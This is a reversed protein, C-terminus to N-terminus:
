GIYAASDQVTQSGCGYSGSGPLGIGDEAEISKTCHRWAAEYSSENNNSCSFTLHFQYEDASIQQPTSVVPNGAGLQLTQPTVDTGLNIAFYTYVPESMQASLASAPVQVTVTEMARCESSPCDSTNTGPQNMIVFISSTASSALPATANSNRVVEVRYRTALTPTVQFAYQATTDSPHLAVSGVLTPPKTFPFQQAYLMAVEGSVTNTVQGSVQASADAGDQYKVFVNGALPAFVSSVSTQISPTPVSPSSALVAAVIAAAALVTGGLTIAHLRRPRWTSRIGGGSAPSRATAQPVTPPVPEVISLADLKAAIMAAFQQPTRRRLDIAVMDSLLGPLPTDDFRAPLVYERRERVARTLAAQRELRTWDGAAYEASVFVVVAAAQEGYIVPLAEALYKGWLDIQEDADYFCRMGRTKLAQAVQEVYDRQAGAFSLAVDWRWGPRAGPGAGGDAGGWSLGTEWGAAASSVVEGMMVAQFDTSKSQHM